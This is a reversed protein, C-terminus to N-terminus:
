WNSLPTYFYGVITEGLERERGEATWNNFGPQRSLDMNRLERGAERSISYEQRARPPPDMCRLPTEAVARCQRQCVSGLLTWHLSKPFFQHTPCVQETAWTGWFKVGDHLSVSRGPLNTLTRITERLVWWHHFKGRWVERRAM